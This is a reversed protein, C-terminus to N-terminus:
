APYRLRMSDMGLWLLTKSIAAAAAATLLLTMHLRLYYQQRFRDQFAHIRHRARM